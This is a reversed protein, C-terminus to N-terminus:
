RLVELKGKEYLELKKEFPTCTDCEKRGCHMANCNLCWGRRKGSGKRYIWHRQCHCCQVTEGVEQGDLFITGRVSRGASAAGKIKPLGSWQPNPVIIEM